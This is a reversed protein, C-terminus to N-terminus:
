SKVGAAREIVRKAAAETRYGNAQNLGTIWAYYSHPKQTTSRSVYGIRIKGVTLCIAPDGYKEKGDFTTFPPAYEKDWEACLLLTRHRRRM